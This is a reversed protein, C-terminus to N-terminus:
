NKDLTGISWASFQEQQNWWYKQWFRSQDLKGDHMDLMDEQMINDYKMNFDYIIRHSLFDVAQKMSSLLVKAPPINRIKTKHTDEIAKKLEKNYESIPITPRATLNLIGEIARKFTNVPNNNKDDLWFCQIRKYHEHLESKDVDFLMYLHSIGRSWTTGYEISIWPRDLSDRSILFIHLKTNQLKSKLTVYWDAGPIISTPAHFVEIKSGYHTELWTRICDAVKIDDDMFSLFVLPKNRAANKVKIKKEM